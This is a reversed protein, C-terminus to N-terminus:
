PTICSRQIAILYDLSSYTRTHPRHPLSLVISIHTHMGCMSTLWAGEVPPSVHIAIYLRDLSLIARFM